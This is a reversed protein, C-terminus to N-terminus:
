KSAFAKARGDAFVRAELESNRGARCRLIVFDRDLASLKQGGGRYEIVRELYKDFDDPVGMESAKLSELKVPLEGDHDNSWASLWKYLNAAEAVGSAPRSGIPMKSILYGVALTGLVGAIVGCLFCTKRSKM